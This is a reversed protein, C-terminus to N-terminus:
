ELKEHVKIDDKNLAKCKHETSVAQNIDEVVLKMDGINYGVVRKFANLSSEVSSGNDLDCRSTWCWNLGHKRLHGTAAKLSVDGIAESNVAKMLIIDNVTHIVVSIGKNQKGYDLHAVKDHLASFLGWLTETDTIISASQIAHLKGEERAARCLDEFALSPKDTGYHDPM